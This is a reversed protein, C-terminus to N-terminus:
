HRADAQPMNCLLRGSRGPHRHLVKNGSHLGCSATRLFVDAHRETGNGTSASRGAAGQHQGGGDDSRHHGSQHHGQRGHRHPLLPQALTLARGRRGLVQRAQQFAAHAVHQATHVHQQPQHHQAHLILRQRRRGFQRRAAPWPPGRRHDLPQVEGVGVTLRPDPRRPPGIGSNGSTSRRSQRRVSLTSCVPRHPV